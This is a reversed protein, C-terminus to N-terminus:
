GIQALNRNRSETGVMPLPRIGVVAFLEILSLATSAIQANITSFTIYIIFLIFFLAVSSSAIIVHFRKM